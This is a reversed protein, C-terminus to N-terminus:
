FAVDLGVWYRRGDEVYGYDEYTVDEDFLNYIAAKVSTNSTLAYTIGADVFTYSPATLTDRTSAPESEKGHYTVKAWSSMLETTQWNLQTTFLHKPLQELPMGAYDGTKQKSYTYTYSSKWDWDDGLPLDLSAEVGRTVAKDVNTYYRPASGWQNNGESCISDPCTVASIKNKFDNNFLGLSAQLGQQGNYILNIEESVSTEPDLNSNGHINGGRSVSVWDDSAQRLDPAKFGTSVGGKLTWADNINWVSYVRPSFHSGYDQNYDYRGGFTLAVTELVRWEDEMFLAFQSNDLETVSGGTNGTLDELESKEGQIGISLTNNAFPTVLVSKALTNTLTMERSENDSQEYQIYSDSRGISGWNGKHSLAFSTRNYEGLSEDDGTTVSKGPTGERKQQTIDASFAIEQNDSLQYILKSGISRLTKDEFGYEINDEDRHQNQGYVQLSLSDTLPGSAFFNVNQEDGSARDEQIVTSLQVKGSWHQGAKKTIVNIVGGMAESGYLTSMPGRIIEIREIAELPPLWASEIGAGDSNPRTQRSSLRKGDVLILTYKSGMGRISIDKTDGGGTVVVGPVTSLADTVDRYYRSSLEEQTLVTVSATANTVVQEYGAATVVITEDAKVREEANVQASVMLGFAVALAVKSPNVRSM